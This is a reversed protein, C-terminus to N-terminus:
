LAHICAHMLCELNNGALSHIWRKPSEAMSPGDWASAPKSTSRQLDALLNTQANQAELPKASSNTKDFDCRQM